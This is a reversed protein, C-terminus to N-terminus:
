LVQVLGFNWRTVNEVEKGDMIMMHAPGFSQGCGRHLAGSRALPPAILLYSPAPAVPRCGDVPSGALVYPPMMQFQHLRTSAVDAPASAFM